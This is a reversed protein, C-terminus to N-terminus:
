LDRGGLSAGRIRSHRARSREKASMTRAPPRSSPDGLLADPELRWGIVHSLHRAVAKAVPPPVANGVQRYQQLRPIVDPWIFTDAFGQLRASERVSVVRDYRHHVPRLPSFNGSGARLTYSLRDPHLRDHHSKPERTGQPLEALAALMAPSHATPEHNHISDTEPSDVDPLDDLADSVTVYPKCSAFLSGEGGTCHTPEPPYPFESVGAIGVMFIRKRMQPVGYDAVALVSSRVCFGLSELEQQVQSYIRGNEIRGLNPVNELIFAAPRIEGVLRVFDRILTGRLDAMGQRKGIISFAQCPPGGAVIDVESVGAIELLQVGSADALDVAHGVAGRYEHNYNYVDVARKENEFGAVVRVGADLLGTSMGGCGAFLDLATPLKM